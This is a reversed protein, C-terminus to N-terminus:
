SFFVGVIFPGSGWLVFRVTWAIRGGKLLPGQEGWIRSRRQVRFGAGAGGAGVGVGVRSPNQAAAEEDACHLEPTVV